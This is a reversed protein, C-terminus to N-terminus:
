NTEENLVARRAKETKIINYIEELARGFNDNMVTYDYEGAHEIEEEAKALRYKIDEERDQGRTILRQRLTDMSPPLIFISLCRIIKGRIARAGQWDIDFLLDIGSDLAQTVSEELTGYLNGYIEAYELFKQEEILKQFEERSKFYYDVGEVEGTRISRTTVSTSSKFSDNMKLLGQTLSSKGGGSPSSLIIVLGNKYETSQKM